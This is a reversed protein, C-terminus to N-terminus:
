REVSRTDFGNAKTCRFSSALISYAPDYNRFCSEVFLSISLAHGKGPQRIIGVIGRGMQRNRSVVFFELDGILDIALPAPRNFLSDGGEFLQAGWDLSQSVGM